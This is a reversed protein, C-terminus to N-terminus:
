STRLSVVVIGVRDEADEGVNSGRWYINSKRINETQRLSIEQFSGLPV